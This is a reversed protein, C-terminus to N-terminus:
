EERKPHERRCANIAAYVQRNVYAGDCDCVQDGSCDDKHCPGHWKRYLELAVLLDVARHPNEQFSRILSNPAGQAIVHNM